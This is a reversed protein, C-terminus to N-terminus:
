SLVDNPLTPSLPEDPDWQSVPLLRPAEVHRQERLAEEPAVDMNNLWETVVQVGLVPAYINRTTTVDAHGLFEQVVELPMGARLLQTARYHRFDHASLSEHLGLAKVARKITNHVSTITLRANASNRSHSVFLAPNTDTREALYAVLAERAYARFYLTRGKNGKGIVTAYESRGHNVNARNLSVVESIRAATSYLVKVVARDRLLSLRRNYQDNEAPLPLSDYYEIIKPMDQRAVDLDIVSEAQNREIQRRAMQRQLKGLQVEDPLLDHGDLYHLYGVVAAMYTTLTARSRNSLLWNRFELVVDTTLGDPQLPWPDSKGYGDKRYHQLWDAFLRLGSRYTAETRLSQAGAERLFADEDRWALDGPVPRQSIPLKTQTQNM